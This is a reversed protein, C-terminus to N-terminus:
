QVSCRLYILMSVIYYSTKVTSKWAAHAEANEQAIRYELTGPDKAKKQRDLTDIDVHGKFAKRDEM